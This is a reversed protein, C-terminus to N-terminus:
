SRAPRFSAEQWYNWRIPKKTYFLLNGSYDSNSVYTFNAKDTLDWKGDAWKTGETVYVVQIVLDNVSNDFQFGNKSFIRTLKGGPPMLVYLAKNKTTNIVFQDYYKDYTGYDNTEASDPPVHIYGIQAFPETMLLNDLNPPWANDPLEPVSLDELPPVTDPCASYNGAKKTFVASTENTYLPGQLLANWQRDGNDYQSTISGQVCWTGEMVNSNQTGLRLNGQVRVPGKLIQDHDSNDFVMNGGVLTPGGLVHEDNLLYLRGKTGNYGVEDSLNVNKFINISDTGWIKYKMLSDWRDQNDQSSTAGTFQLPAVSAKAFAFTPILGVLLVALCKLKKM